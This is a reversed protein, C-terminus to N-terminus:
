SPFIPEVQYRNLYINIENVNVFRVEGDHQRGASGVM